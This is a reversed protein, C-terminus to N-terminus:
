PSDPDTVIVSALGLRIVPVNSTRARPNVAASGSSSSCHTVTRPLKSAAPSLVTALMVAIRYGLVEGVWPPSSLVIRLLSLILRSDRSTGQGVSSSAAAQPPPSLPGVPGPPPSM